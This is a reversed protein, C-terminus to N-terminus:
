SVMSCAPADRRDAYSVGSSGTQGHAARAVDAEGNVLQRGIGDPM